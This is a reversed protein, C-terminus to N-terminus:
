KTAYVVRQKRQYACNESENSNMFTITHYFKTFLAFKVTDCSVNSNM